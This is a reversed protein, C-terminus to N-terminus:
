ALTRAIPHAVLEAFIPDKALMAYVRHSRTGEFVNRGCLDRDLWPQLAARYATIEAGSLVDTFVTYGEEQIALSHTELDGLAGNAHVDTNM